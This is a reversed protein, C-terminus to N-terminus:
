GPQVDAEAQGHGLAPDLRYPLPRGTSHTTGDGSRKTSRIAMGAGSRETARIATGRGADGGQRGYQRGPALMATGAGAANRSYRTAAPLTRRVGLVSKPPSAYREEGPFNPRSIKRSVKESATGIITVFKFGADIYLRTAIVTTASIERIFATESAPARGPKARSDHPNLAPRNAM